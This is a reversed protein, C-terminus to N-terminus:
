LTMHRVRAGREIAAAHLRDINFEYRVEELLRLETQGLTADAAAVDCALAYATEFLREPLAARVLAFLTDLGDEEEMMKFVTQAAERMRGTDYAAFIPLHNVQREIAVLESTSIADDSVSVAVMIAVLADQATFDALTNTL